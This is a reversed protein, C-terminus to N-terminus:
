PLADACRRLQASCARRRRVPLLEDRQGCHPRIDGALKEQGRVGSMWAGSRKSPRAFYDGLFLGVHRGDAGTVEWARVAPHYLPIDTREEFSLGFLRGATYFAAEIMRDLQFYPKIQAEDFDFEAKRRQESYYRWDWPAFEFNGGEAQALKQLAEQDDEAKRRAPTWVSRLLGLAAEPTKAMTDELRYEAFSNYGLLRAREARLAVTQRSSRGIIPRRAQKAAPRGPASPPRACIAGAPSHLFPEISSRALTIVHKGPMGRDAAARAAAAVLFEPLGARDAETELVLTYAKEDALMNQGFQTGLAALRESIAALRQKEPEPLAAGQRVFVTHYRDLVRSQESSLHLEAQRLKLRAIRRFLKESLYIASRHKSLIPALARETEQLEDNTHSGALNFFVSAVRSLDKGALEMAAITNDFSPEAPDNEIASIEARHSALAEDFAPPFHHPAIAEFPPADFPATWPRLLPNDSLGSQGEIREASMTMRM